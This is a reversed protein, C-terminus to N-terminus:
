GLDLARVTAALAVAAILGLFLNKRWAVLAV